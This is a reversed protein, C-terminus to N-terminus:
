RKAEEAQATFERKLKQFLETLAVSDDLQCDFAPNAEVGRSKQKKSESMKERLLKGQLELFYVQQQLNYVFEKELAQPPLTNKTGIRSTTPTNSNM